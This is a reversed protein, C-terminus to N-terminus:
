NLYYLKYAKLPFDFKDYQNVFKYLNLLDQNLGYYAGAITGVIAGVTDSDGGM